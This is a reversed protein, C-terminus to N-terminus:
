AREYGKSHTMYVRSNTASALGLDRRMMDRIRIMEDLTRYTVEKDGYKVKLEGGTIAAELADLQAQTFAM